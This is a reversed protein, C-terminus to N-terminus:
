SSCPDAVRDLSIPGSVLVYRNAGNEVGAQTGLDRLSNAMRQVIENADSGNTETDRRVLSEVTALRAELSPAIGHPDELDSDDAYDPGDYQSNKRTQRFRLSQRPPSIPLDSTAPRIPSISITHRDKNGDRFIPHENEKSQDNRIAEARGYLDEPIGDGLQHGNEDEKDFAEALEDALNGLGNANGTDILDDFGNSSEFYGSREHSAIPRPTSQPTVSDQSSRRSDSPQKVSSGNSQPSASTFSLDIAISSSKRRRTPTPSSSPM